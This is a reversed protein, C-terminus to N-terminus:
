EVPIFCSVARDTACWSALMNESESAIPHYAGIIQVTEYLDGTEQAEYRHILAVMYVDLPVLRASQWRM